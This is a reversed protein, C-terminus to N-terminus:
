IKGGQGEPAIDKYTTPKKGNLDLTSPQPTGLVKPKGNISFENHLKSDKAKDQFKKPSQGKLGLNMNSLNDLLGM